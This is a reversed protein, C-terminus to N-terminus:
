LTIIMHPREILDLISRDTTTVVTQYKKILNLVLGRNVLDLESFIDDLLVLPRRKLKRQYYNIENLVLWFLALRQKSRAGFRHVDKFDEEKKEKTFIQYVDRQPGVLTRKLIFQKKFTQDLTKKSIENKRYKLQFFIDDIKKNQNFFDVLEERKEVICEVQKILYDDWFFLREKLKDKDRESEIVKNRRRLAGLYNILRKKYEIDWFSITNDFFDRRRQLEGDIIYILGPTFLVIPHSLNIFGSARKKIGDVLFSKSTQDNKLIDVRFAVKEEKQSFEAEVHCSSRDQRVLEEEKEERFGKGKSVLYIAELLNTKGVSNKGIVLTLFPNFYFTKKDLNRFNYLRISKLIM